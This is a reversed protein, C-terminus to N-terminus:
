KLVLFDFMPDDLFGDFGDPVIVSITDGDKMHKVAEDMNKFPNDITGDGSDAGDRGVFIRNM